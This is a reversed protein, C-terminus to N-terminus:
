VNRVGGVALQNFPPSHAFLVESLVVRAILGISQPWPDTFLHAGVLLLLDPAVAEQDIGESYSRKYYKVYMCGLM